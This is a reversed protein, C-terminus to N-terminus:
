FTSLALLSPLVSVRICLWGGLLGQACCPALLGYDCRTQDRCDLFIFSFLHRTRVGLM